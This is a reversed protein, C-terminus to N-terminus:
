DVVAKGEGGAMTGLAHWVDLNVGTSVSHVSGDGCVMIIAGPHSTGFTYRCQTGSQGGNFGTQDVCERISSYPGYETSRMSHLDAELWQAHVRERTVIMGNELPELYWGAVYKIDTPTALDNQCAEGAFFTHSLGDIVDKFRTHSAAAFPGARLPNRTQRSRTFYDDSGTGWKRGSNFVYSTLPSHVNASDGHGERPQTTPVAQPTADSPCYYVDIHASKVDLQKGDDDYHIDEGSPGLSYNYHANVATADMFPLLYVFGTTRWSLTAYPDTAGARVDAGPPLQRRASHFSQLAIGIQKLNSQCAARRASERASQIAPLILAVLIGLIAIVVLLEILTFARFDTKRAPRYRGLPLNV